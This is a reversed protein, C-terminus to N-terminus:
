GVLEAAQRSGPKILLQDRQNIEVSLLDLLAQGASDGGRVVIEVAGQQQQGPPVATAPPPLAAPGSPFGGPGSGQVSAATQGYQTQQIAAIQAVGAAVVAAAAAINAPFPLDKLAQAAAQHTSIVANAIAAVKAIQFFTKNYSTMGALLGLYHQAKALREQRDKQAQIEAQREREIREAESISQLIIARQEAEKIANELRFESQIRESETRLRDLAVIQEAASQAAAVAAQLAPDVVAAPAAAAPADEPTRPITAQLEAVKAKVEAIRARIAEEDLPGGPFLGLVDLVFNSIASRPPNAITQQLQADLNGLEATLAKIEEEARVADAQKMADWMRNTEIVIEGLTTLARQELMNLFADWADKAAAVAQVEEDSLVGANERFSQTIRDIEEPATRVWGIMQVGGRSFVEQATSVQEYTDGMNRLGDIVAPFLADLDSLDTKLDEQTIGLKAFSEILTKNGGAAEGASRQLKELMGTFAEGEINSFQAVQQWERLTQTSVNLLLSANDLEDAMDGLHEVYAAVAGVSLAGALKGLLGEVSGLSATIEDFASKTQNQATILFDIKDAM